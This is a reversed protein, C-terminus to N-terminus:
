VAVDAALVHDVADPAVDADRADVVAGALHLLDDNRLPQAFTVHSSRSVVILDEWAAAVVGRDAWVLGRQECDTRAAAHRTPQLATATRLPRHYPGRRCHDARRRRLHGM